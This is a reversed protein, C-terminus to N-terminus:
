VVFSRCWLENTLQGLGDRPTPGNNEDTDTNSIKTRVPGSSSVAGFDKKFLAFLEPSCVSMFHM